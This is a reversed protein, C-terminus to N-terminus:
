KYYITGYIDYPHNPDACNLILSSGYIILVGAYYEAYSNRCYLSHGVITKGTPYGTLSSISVRESVRSRYGGISVSDAFTASISGSVQAVKISDDLADEVTGSGYTVDSAPLDSYERDTCIWYTPREASPLAQWEALTMQPLQNAGSILIGNQYLSM